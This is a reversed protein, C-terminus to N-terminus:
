SREEEYREDYGAVVAPTVLSLAVVLVRGLMISGARTTSILLQKSAEQRM